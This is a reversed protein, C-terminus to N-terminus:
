IAYVSSLILLGSVIELKSLFFSPSFSFFGV